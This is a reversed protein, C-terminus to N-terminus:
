DGTVAVQLLRLRQDYASLIRARHGDFHGKCMDATFESERNVGGATLKKIKRRMEWAELMAGLPTRLMWEALRMLMGRSSPAIDRQPPTIANPFYAYSWNNMARFQEYMAMGAIPVMQALERATFPNQDTIVLANTSIFYNPCLTIGDRRIGRKVIGIVLLRCLWLRGPATIILLDIDGEKDTNDVALSGTVAVMQVFPLRGVIRGYKEAYGWLRKAIEARRLRTQVIHERGMLCIYGGCDAVYRGILRAIAMNVSHMDAERGILYRHIEAHTMPYDFIDAYAVTQLIDWELDTVM